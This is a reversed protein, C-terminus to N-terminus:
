IKTISRGIALAQRRKASGPEGLQNAAVARKLLNDLQRKEMFDLPKSEEIKRIRAAERSKKKALAIKQKATLVKVPKPLAKNSTKVRAEKYCDRLAKAADAGYVQKVLFLYIGAFEAGHRVQYPAVCHAIEHLIVIPQRAWVGLTIRRSGYATGGNRGYDVVIQREGFRARFWQQDLIRNVYNQCEWISSFKADALIQPEFNMSRFKAEAAYVKSKQTDRVQTAM